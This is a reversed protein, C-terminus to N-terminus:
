LDKDLSTCRKFKADHQMINSYSRYVCYNMHKLLWNQHLTYFFLSILDADYFNKLLFTNCGFSELQLLMFDQPCSIKRTFCWMQFETSDQKASARKIRVICFVNVRAHLCNEHYGTKKNWVFDVEKWPVNNICLVTSFKELCPICRLNTASENRLKLSCLELM